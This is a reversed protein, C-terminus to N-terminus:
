KGEGEKEKYTSAICLEEMQRIEITSPAGIMTDRGQNNKPFAIFERISEQGGLLTCLRDLGFALGGHPPAGYQFAKLLFGFQEQASEATFGLHKFMLLQLDRDHIRISGGGVEVGNLVMDYAVARVAKPNTDLLPLDQPQPTTFPHHMASWRKEEENWELLPFDTVWLPKFVDPKRLNLQTGMALRMKGMAVRTPEETGWFIMLLDNETAKCAEVLKQLNEENYFKDVSSTPKKTTKVWVLGSAGVDGSKALKTYDDIAKKSATALGPCCIATVLEADDFLKFGKGKVLETLDTMPMEFRLDPKDCGYFKMADSYLMRQFPEPFDLGRIEKLIYKMFKEFLTLVDEQNVFSMECDIQTFEPQRDARLEEDRFCKVIQFYRDIGAVMLTQKFTQPSQPLAYFQGPNMRSPVVFDRAGEPTSKILMPTEVEIFDHASLFNRVLQAVRHRLILSDRVPTRRIDLFRYQMRIDNLGDTKDEILFPPTLSPSLVQIDSPVIEIFGTPIDNNKNFREVVNGTVSIVWERGFTKCKAYLDVSTPEVVVQTVGFRDRLDIFFVKADRLKQIWGCLTVTKGVDSVRLEGCNHTRYSSVQQSQKKEIPIEM